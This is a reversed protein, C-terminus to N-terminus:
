LMVFKIKYKSNGIVTANHIRQLDNLKIVSFIQIFLINQTNRVTSFFTVLLASICEHLIIWEKSVKLRFKNLIILILKFLNLCKQLFFM